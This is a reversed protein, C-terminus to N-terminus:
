WHPGAEQVLADKFRADPPWRKGAGVGHQDQSLLQAAAAVKPLEAMLRRGCPGDECLAWATNAMGQADVRPQSTVKMVAVMFDTDVHGLSQPAAYTNALNQPNFKRPAQRECWNPWSAPDVHGLQGVYRRTPWSRHSSATRSRVGGGQGAPWSCLTRYQRAQVVM